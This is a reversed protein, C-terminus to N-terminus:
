PADQEFEDGNPERHGADRRAVVRRAADAARLGATM